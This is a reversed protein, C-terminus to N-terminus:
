DREILERIRRTAANVALQVEIADKKFEPFKPETAKARLGDDDREVQRAWQTPVQEPGLLGVLSLAESGLRSREEKDTSGGRNRNELLRLLAELDFMLKAQELASRRDEAAINRANARDRWSTFLAVISALVAAVLAATAILDGIAMQAILEEITM